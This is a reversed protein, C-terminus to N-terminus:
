MKGSTLGESRSVISLQIFAVGRPRDARAASCSRVLIDARLEPANAPKKFSIRPGNICIVRVRSRSRDNGLGEARGRATHERSGARGGMAPARTKEGVVGHVALLIAAM